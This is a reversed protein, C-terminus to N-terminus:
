GAEERGVIHQEGKGPQKRRLQKRMGDEPEERGAAVSFASPADRGVRMHQQSGKGQKFETAALQKRAGHAGRGGREEECGAGM